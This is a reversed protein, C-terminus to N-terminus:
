SGLSSQTTSRGQKCKDGDHLEAVGEPGGGEKRAGGGGARVVAPVVM